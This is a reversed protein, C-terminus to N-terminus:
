THISQVQKEIEMWNQDFERWNQRIIQHWKLPKRKIVRINFDEDRNAFFM